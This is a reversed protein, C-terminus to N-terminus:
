DVRAIFIVRFLYWGRKLSWEFNLGGESNLGSSILVIRGILVVQKLILMCNEIYIPRMLSLQGNNLDSEVLVILPRIIPVKSYKFSDFTIFAGTIFPQSNVTKGTEM